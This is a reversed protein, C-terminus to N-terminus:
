SEKDWQKYTTLKSITRQVMKDGDANLKDSVFRIAAIVDGAENEFLETLSETGDPHGEGGYALMKGMTQQSKGLRKQLEGLVEQLEGTEEILKSLGQNSMAM